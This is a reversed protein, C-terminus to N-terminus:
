LMTRKNLGLDALARAVARLVEDERIGLEACAQAVAQKWDASQADVLEKKTEATPKFIGGRPETLIEATGKDQALPKWARAFSCSMARKELVANLFDAYARAAHELESTELVFARANTGMGARLNEDGGLHELTARLLETERADVDIKAVAADPLEAFWGARSVIVPKGQAMMRLAAGSTEGATPYRLNVCIDMAAMYAHFDELPTHGVIHVADRLPFFDILGRLDFEDSVAGVFWLQAGGMKERAARFAELLVSARKTPGMNGFAGIMLGERPLELRARAETQSIQLFPPLAHPIQAVPIDPAARQVYECVYRSHAIVGRANRLARESLPYDFRNLGELGVAEREALQAGREGYAERMAGIYGARNGHELTLWAVLHHLVIEHLVIVGPERLARQYIYAHAPSNGLHYLAMDFARADYASDQVVRFNALAPNTPMYGDVVLTIEFKSALAPLLEESYDSVGSAAPNLPSFFALRM